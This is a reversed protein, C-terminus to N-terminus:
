VPKHATEVDFPLRVCFTSGKDAESEVEVRGGHARVIKEVIALGLGSGGAQSLSHESRFFRDFIHPMDRSPIGRGSDRVCVVVDRADVRTTVLVSGGGPTYKLANDILNSLAREMKEADFAVLPLSARGEFQLILGRSIAVSQQDGVLREVLANLDQMAFEFEDEIPKELQLLMLMNRIMNELNDVQTELKAIHEARREPVNTKGLLYLSTKLITLPTMLDHTQDGIFRRLLTIQERELALDMARAEAEKRATVDRVIVLVEDPGSVTIRAELYYTHGSPLTLSYEYTQLRGTELAQQVSQIRLAASEPTVVEAVKRGVIDGAAQKDEFDSGHIVELYTGDRHIRAMFDPIAQLIARLRAEIQKLESIDINVGAIGIIENQDRVPVVINYVRMLQDNALYQMEKRIREGAFAQRNNELWAELVWDPIRKKDPLKEV